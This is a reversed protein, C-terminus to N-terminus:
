SSSCSFSALTRYQPGGPGLVSEILHFERVEFSGLEDKRHAAFFAALAPKKKVRAITLHASFREDGGFGKLAGGVDEALAELAGGSECGAWVVRIYNEDPFAGIGRLTCRFGPFRVQALREKITELKTGQTEGIFRLTLHMNEKRVPVVGELSIERGLGAARERLEEPIPIAVFLRM